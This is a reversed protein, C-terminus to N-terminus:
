KRQVIEAEVLLEALDKRDGITGCFVVDCGHLGRIADPSAAYRYDVGDIRTHSTGFHSYRKCPILKQQLFDKFERPNGAFVIVTKIECGM